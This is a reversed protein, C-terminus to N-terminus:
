GETSCSICAEAAVAGLVAKGVCLRKSEVSPGGVISVVGFMRIGRAEWVRGVLVPWAGFKVSRVSGEGFRARVSVWGHNGAAGGRWVSGDLEELPQRSVAYVGSRSSVLAAGDEGGRGGARAVVRLLPTKHIRSVASRAASTERHVAWTM